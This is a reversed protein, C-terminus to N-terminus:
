IHRFCTECKGYFVTKTTNVKFTHDQYIHRHIEDLIDCSLHVLEGCDECKLLLHKQQEVDSAAYQYCTGAIGDVRYKRLTKDRVLKELQRYITTRGVPIKENQFHGVIQAATVHTNGLSVVYALVAERQKTNYSSPRKM